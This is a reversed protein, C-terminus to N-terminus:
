VAVGVVGFGWIGDEEGDRDKVGSGEGDTKGGNVASAM